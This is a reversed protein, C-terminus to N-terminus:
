YVFDITYNNPINENEPVNKKLILLFLSSLGLLVMKKGIKEYFRIGLVMWKEHM